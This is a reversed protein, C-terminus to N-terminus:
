YIYNTNGMWSWNYGVKVGKPINYLRINNGALCNICLEGDEWAEFEGCTKCAM